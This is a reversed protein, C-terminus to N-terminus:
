LNNLVLVSLWVGFGVERVISSPYRTAASLSREPGRVSGVIHCTFHGHCAPHTYCAILLGLSLTTLIGYRRVSSLIWEVLKDVKQVGARLAISALASNSTAVGVIRVRPVSSAVSDVVALGRRM